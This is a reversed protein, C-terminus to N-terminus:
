ETVKVKALKPRMLEHLGESDVFAVGTILVGFVTNGKRTAIVTVLKKKDSARVIYASYNEEGLSFLGPVEEIVSEGDLLFNGLKYGMLTDQFGERAERSSKYITANSQLWLAGNSECAADKRYDFSYELEVSMNLFVKRASFSECNAADVTAMEKFDRATVLLEKEEAQIDRTSCGGSLGAVVLLGAVLIFKSLRPNSVNM